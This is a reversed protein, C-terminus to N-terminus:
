VQKARMVGSRALDLMPRDRTLLTFGNVRCTAALIRDAPDGHFTGPLEACECAVSLNFPALQVQSRDVADRLWERVPSPINLKGRSAKLAIEWLSMPSLYLEGDSAALRCSQLVEKDLQTNSLLWLWVHTDLLLSM